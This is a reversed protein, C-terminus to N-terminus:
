NCMVEKLYNRPLNKELHGFIRTRWFHTSIDNVDYFYLLHLFTLESKEITVIHLTAIINKLNPTTFLKM